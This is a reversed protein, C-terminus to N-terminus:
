LRALFSVDVSRLKGPLNEGEYFVLHLHILIPFPSVDSIFGLVTGPGVEQGERVQIDEMHLYGSWWCNGRISDCAFEDLSHEVLVAGSDNDDPPVIGAYKVIKGPAVAFVPRGREANGLLNVDWAFTDDSGWIGGGERHLDTRHQCFTWLDPVNWCEPNEQGTSRVGQFQVM